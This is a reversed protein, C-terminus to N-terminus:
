DCYPSGDVCADYIQWARCNRGSDECAKRPTKPKSCPFMGSKIDESYVSIQEVAPQAANAVYIGSLALIFLIGIIIIENKISKMKKIGKRNM